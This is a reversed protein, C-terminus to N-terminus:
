RHQEPLTLLDDLTDEDDLIFGQGREVVFVNEAVGTVLNDRRDIIEILGDCREFALFNMQDKAVDPQFVIM